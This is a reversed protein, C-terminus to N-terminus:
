DYDNYDPGDENLIEMAAIDAKELAEGGIIKLMEDSLPTEDQWLYECDELGYGMIGVDHEPYTINGKVIICITTDHIVLKVDTQWEQQSM